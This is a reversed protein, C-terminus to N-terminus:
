RKRRATTETFGVDDPRNPLLGTKFYKTTYKILKEMKLPLYDVM